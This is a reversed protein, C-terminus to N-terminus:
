RACYPKGAHVVALPQKRLTLWSPPVVGGIASAPQPWSIARSRSMTLAAQGFHEIRSTSALPAPMTSRPVASFVATASPAVATELLQPPLSNDFSLM